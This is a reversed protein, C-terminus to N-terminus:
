GVEVSGLSPTFVWGANTEQISQPLNLDLTVTTTRGGQVTVSTTTLFVGNSVSMVVSVGSSLVGSVGSVVLRMQMFTGPAVRDQALLRTLNGLSLFDVHATALSISVWGNGGAAAAPLVSVESFTVILHSWSVPTDRVQIALTGTSTTSVFYAVGAAILVFGLLVAAAVRARM